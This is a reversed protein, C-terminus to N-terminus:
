PSNFTRELSDQYTCKTKSYILSEGVNNEVLIYKLAETCLGVGKCTQLFYKSMDETETHGRKLLAWADSNCSPTSLM